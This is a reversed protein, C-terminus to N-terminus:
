DQSTTGGDVPPCELWFEPFRGRSRGKGGEAKMKTVVNQQVSGQFRKRHHGQTDRCEEPSQSSRAKRPAGSVGLPAFPGEQTRVPATDRFEKLAATTRPTDGQKSQFRGSPLLTDRSLAHPLHPLSRAVRTSTFAESM